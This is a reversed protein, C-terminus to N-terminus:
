EEDRKGNEGLERDAGSARVQMVRACLSVLATWAHTHTHTGLGGAATQPLFFVNSSFFVDPVM